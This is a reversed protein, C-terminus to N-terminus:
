GGVARLQEALGAVGDGGDIRIRALEFPKIARALGGRTTTAGLYGAARVAAIVRADYRGAPYCFFRAPVGFERQIRWRSDAVERKL